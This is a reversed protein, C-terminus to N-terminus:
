NPIRRAAFRSNAILHSVRKVSLQDWAYRELAHVYSLQLQDPAMLVDKAALHSSSIVMQAAGLDIQEIAFHLLPQHQQM